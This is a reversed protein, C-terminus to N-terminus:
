SAAEVGHRRREDARIAQELSWLQSNALTADGVFQQYAKKVPGWVGLGVAKGEDALQAEDMGDGYEEPSVPGSM